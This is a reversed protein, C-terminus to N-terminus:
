AYVAQPPQARAYHARMARLSQAPFLDALAAFPDDWSREARHQAIMSYSNLQQAGSKWDVIQRPDIAVHRVRMRDGHQTRLNTLISTDCARQRDEDGPRFTLAELLQRPYIRIGCGGTYALHRAVMERGDERVFAIHQFGVVTRQDPLSLLIRHDIWDDSGCPVVYDAAREPDWGDPLQWSDPRLGPRVRRLLRLDGRYIARSEAGRDLSAAFVVGPQHGRYARVGAVLYEGHTADRRRPPLPRDCALQIGDNYRRSLYANDREVSGFGLLRRDLRHRLARLDDADAVVVATADVGDATLADCTQRLQRLCILALPLRGHVPV